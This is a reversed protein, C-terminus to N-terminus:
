PRPELAFGELVIAAEWARDLADLYQDQSQGLTRQAALVQPYAAAMQEYSRRYLTYAEEARPLIERRYVEVGRRASEYQEFASAVRTTAALTTAQVAAKSRALDAGAEAIGGRNRNFM